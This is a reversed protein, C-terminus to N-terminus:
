STVAMDFLATSIPEFESWMRTVVPADGIRAVGGISEDAQGARSAFVYLTIPTGGTIREFTASEDTIVGDSTSWSRETHLLASWGFTMAQCHLELLRRSRVDILALPVATV